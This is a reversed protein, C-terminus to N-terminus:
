GPSSVHMEAADNSRPLDLENAFTKSSCRAVVNKSANGEENQLM